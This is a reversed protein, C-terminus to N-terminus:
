EETEATEPKKPRAKGPPIKAPGKLMICLVCRDDLPRWTEIRLGLRTATTRMVKAGRRAAEPTVYLLQAVKGPKLDEELLQRNAGHAAKSRGYRANEIDTIELSLMPGYPRHEITGKSKRNAM